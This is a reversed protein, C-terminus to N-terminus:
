EDDDDTPQQPGASRRELTKVTASEKLFNVNEDEETHPQQMSDVMARDGRFRAKIRDFWTNSNAMTTVIYEKANQIDQVLPLSQVRNYYYM